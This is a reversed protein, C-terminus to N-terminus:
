GDLRSRGRAVEVPHRELNRALKREILDLLDLDLADCLFVLYIAVDAIEEALADRDGSCVERDSRWLFHELLEGAETSVAIALDKATHFRRWDRDDRYARLRAILESYGSVSSMRACAVRKAALAQVPDPDGLIATRWSKYDRVTLPM